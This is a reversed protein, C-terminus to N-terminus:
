AAKKKHGHGAILRDLQSMAQQHALRSDSRMRGTTKLIAQETAEFGDRLVYKLLARPTRGAIQALKELKRTDAQSLTIAEM